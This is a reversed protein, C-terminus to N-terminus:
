IFFFFFKIIQIQNWFRRMFIFFSWFLWFDLALLCPWLLLPLPLPSATASESRESSWESSLESCESSSCGRRSQRAAEAALWARQPWWPPWPGPLPAKWLWAVAAGLAVATVAVLLAPYAIVTLINKKRFFFNELSFFIIKVSKIHIQNKDM